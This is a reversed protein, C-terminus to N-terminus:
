SMSVSSMKIENNPLLYLHISTFSNGNFNEKGFHLNSQNDIDFPHVLYVAKAVSINTHLGTWILNPAIINFNKAFNLTVIKCM